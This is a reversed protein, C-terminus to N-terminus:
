ANTSSAEELMMMALDGDTSPAAVSTTTTYSGRRREKRQRERAAASLRAEEQLQLGREKASKQLDGGGLRLTLTADLMSPAMGAMQASLHAKAGSFGREAPANGLPATYVAAAIEVLLPHIMHEHAATNAARHAILEDYRCLWYEENSMTEYRPDRFHELRHWERYIENLQHQGFPYRKISLGSRVFADEMSISVSAGGGPVSVNVLYSVPDVPVKPGGQRLAQREISLAGRIVIRAVGPRVYLKWEKLAADVAKHYQKIAYLKAADHYSASGVVSTLISKGPRRYVRMEYARQLYKTQLTAIRTAANSKMDALQTEM